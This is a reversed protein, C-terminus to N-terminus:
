RQRTSQWTLEVLTDAEVEFRVIDRSKLGSAEAGGGISVCLICAASKLAAWGERPLIASAPRSRVRVRM